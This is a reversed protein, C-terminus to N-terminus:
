ERGKLFWQGFYAVPGLRSDLHLVSDIQLSTSRCLHMTLSMLLVVIFFFMLSESPDLIRAVIRM